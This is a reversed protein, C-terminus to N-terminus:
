ELKWTIIFKTLHVLEKRDCSFQINQTFSSQCVLREWTITYIRKMTNFFMTDVILNKRGNFITITWLQNKWLAGLRVNEAEKLACLRLM